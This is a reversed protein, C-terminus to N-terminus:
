FSQILRVWCLLSQLLKSQDSDQQVEAGRWSRPYKPAEV